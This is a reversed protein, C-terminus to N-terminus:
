GLVVPNGPRARHNFALELQPLGLRRIADGTIERVCGATTRAGSVGPTVCAPRVAAEIRGIMAAADAPNSLDLGVSSIRIQVPAAPEAHAALPAALLAALVLLNKM